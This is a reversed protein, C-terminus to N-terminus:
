SADSAYRLRIFPLADSILDVGRWHGAKALVACAAVTKLYIARALTVSRTPGKAQPWHLAALM